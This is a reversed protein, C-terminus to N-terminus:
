DISCNVSCRAPPGQDPPIPGQPFRTGARRPYQAPCCTTRILAHSIVNVGHFDPQGGVLLAPDRQYLIDSEGGPHVNVEGPTGDAVDDAAEGDTIEVERDLAIRELQLLLEFM